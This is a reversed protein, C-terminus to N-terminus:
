TDDNARQRRWRWLLRGVLVWLGVQVLLMVRRVPPTNFSVTASGGHDVEFGNAWGLAKSRSVSSGDVTLQWGSSSAASLYLYSDDPLDGDFRRTGGGSLLAPTAGTLDLARVVPFYAPAAFALGISDPFRARSPAWATNRYVHLAPNVPVQALDLQAELAALLDAPAPRHDEGFPTAAEAVVIYRIGMPALLRGLRATEHKDAIRLADAVLGTPGDASAPWREQVSPLAQDTTAYALGDRVQWGALPLVDPDGVWLVRFAGNSQEEHLFGLVSDFGVAPANWRGDLAAVVVPVAGVTVAAAAVVSAVQRWGFRYGPLDVEFALLGLAICFALAAAAPALLAEPPGLGYHFWPQQGVWAVSFCTLALVWARTAWALRWERGILLPLVAAIVFAWGFPAAGIPGTEFRLLNGVSLDTGLSRVGGISAWQAGPLVLDLSWPVHLIFAVAGAGLAVGIARAGGAPAGCVMGGLALGIAIVVLALPAFAVFAAVLALAVGTTLVMREPSRDDRDFPDSGIIRAFTTVAYPTAAWLVLGGWRGTAIANYPLPIVLYAVVTVLRTPRTPLSRGFRWAGFAGIPIMGIFLLRRLLSMAGLLLTGAAGLLAFATPAPSESGLGSRRFGSTWDGFLQWPRSPFAPYDGFTPITGTLLSRTGVLLVVVIAAWVALEVRASTARLSGAVDRGAETMSRLRDDAHGGIQGRLYANFRASGRVQMRRVEHDPVQRLAKVRARNARIESQRKANWVWAGAIDRAHAMRGALAAYVVEVLALFMAQPLVRALHWPGYCTLMTRLRHRARLRRRDDVDRRDGLAEQHRVVAAPAVIVRAGAVQARWGLDLDEGLLDIAPDFGGLAAFLDARILMCGGPACFVDRVADHQEQDIEGPEVLEAPVGTKDTSQGVHVLVREDDWRVLKPSIIGANSRFAEEVMARLADPALAIDDHCLLYFAAGDVVELVENSAPGYGPNTDLKRVFAAPMVAAVRPTPDVESATDIVLVSLAEYQQDRLSELCAEFAPGPDHCVVVAVVPPVTLPTELGDDDDADRRADDPAVTDPPLVM